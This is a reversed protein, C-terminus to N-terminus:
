EQTEDSIRDDHQVEDSRENEKAEKTRDESKGAEAKRQGQDMGRATLSNTTSLGLGESTKRSCEVRLGSRGSFRPFLGDLDDRQKPIGYVFFSICSTKM